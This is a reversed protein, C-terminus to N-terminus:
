RGGCPPRNKERSLAIISGDARREIARVGEGETGSVTFARRVSIEFTAFLKNMVDELRRGRIRPDLDGFLAFLQQKHEDLSEKKRAITAIEAERRAINDRREKEREDKMRTFSDKVDVLKQIQTVLGQAKLRDTEWCASFDQFEVVRKIIERRERIAPEGRENLRTLVTRVIQYKNTQTRDERIVQGHDSLIAEPVGAGKFFLLTDEKSRCLLPITDM